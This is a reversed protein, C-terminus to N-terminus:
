DIVIRILRDTARTRATEAIAAQFIAATMEDPVAVEVENGTFSARMSALGLGEMALVAIRVPDLAPVVSPAARLAPEHKVRKARGRRGRRSM